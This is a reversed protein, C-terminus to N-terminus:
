FMVVKKSTVMSKGFSKVIGSHAGAKINALRQVRDKRKEDEEVEIKRRKLAHFDDEDAGADNGQGRSFLVQNNVPELFGITTHPSTMFTATVVYREEESQLSEGFTEHGWLTQLGRRESLNREGQEAPLIIGFTRKGLM